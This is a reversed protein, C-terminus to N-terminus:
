STPNASAPTGCTPPTNAPESTSGRPPDSCAPERLDLDTVARIAIGALQLLRRAFQQMYDPDATSGSAAAAKSIRHTLLTLTDGSTQVPPHKLTAAHIHAHVAAIAQDTTM